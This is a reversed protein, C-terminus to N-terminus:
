ADVFFSGKVKLISVEGAELLPAVFKEVQAFNEFDFAALIEAASILPHLKLLNRLADLSKEVPQPKVAGRTVQSILDLFDEYSILGQSLIGEEGFQIIYSPLTRLELQQTFELDQKLAAAATTGRFHKEFEAADIKTKEVVKLIEDLKTTPRCGVITAYRLNYLFLDARAADAM